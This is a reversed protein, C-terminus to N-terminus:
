RAFYSRNLAVGVAWAKHSTAAVGFLTNFNPGADPVPTHVWRSGNFRAATALTADQNSSRTDPLFNGVAWVEHRSAAAVAGFSNDNSGLAPARQVTWGGSSSTSATYRVPEKPTPSLAAIDPM